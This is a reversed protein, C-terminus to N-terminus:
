LRAQDPRAARAFEFPRTFADGRRTRGHQLALDPADPHQARVALRLRATDLDPEGVACRGFNEFAVQTLAFHDDRALVDVRTAAAVPRLRALSRRAEAARRACTPAAAAPLSLRLAWNM